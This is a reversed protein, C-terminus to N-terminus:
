PKLRSARDVSKKSGRVIYLNRVAALVLFVLNLLALLIESLPPSYGESRTIVGYTILLAAIALIPVWHRTPTVSALLLNSAQVSREGAHVEWGLVTTGQREDGLQNLIDNVRPILADLLYNSLSVLANLSILMEWLLVHFVLPLLLLVILAQKELVLPVFGLGAGIAVISLNLYQRETDLWQLIEARLASFETKHLDLEALLTERHMRISEEVVLGNKRNM